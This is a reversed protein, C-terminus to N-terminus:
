GALYFKTEFNTQITKSNRGMQYGRWLLEQAPNQKIKHIPLQPMM